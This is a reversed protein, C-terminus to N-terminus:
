PGHRRGRSPSVKPPKTADERLRLETAMAKRPAASVPSSLIRGDKQHAILSGEFFAFVSSISSLREFAGDSARSIQRAFAASVPAKM